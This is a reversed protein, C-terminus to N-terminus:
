DNNLSIYLGGAKRNRDIYDTIETM